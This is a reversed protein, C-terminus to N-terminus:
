KYGRLAVREGMSAMWVGVGARYCPECLRWFARLDPNPDHIVTVSWEAADYEGCSCCQGPLVGPEYEALRSAM